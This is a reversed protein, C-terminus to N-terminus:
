RQAELPLDDDFDLLRGPSTAGVSGQAQELGVDGADPPEWDWEVADLDDHGDAPASRMGALADLISVVFFLLIAALAIVGVLARLTGSPRLKAEHAAVVSETTIRYKAAVGRAQQMQELERTLASGVVGATKVAAQATQGTGTIQLTPTSYGFGGGPAVAYNQDAGQEVLARRAEDSSLRTAMLQAVVTLDSFRTYPNDAGRLISPDQQIESETPAPPPTFLVYTETSEYTPPRFALVYISAALTLGIIPLTVLRYRWLKRISALLTM